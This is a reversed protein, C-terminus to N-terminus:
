EVELVQSLLLLHLSALVQSLLLLHLSALVQSLLLLHLSPVQGVQGWDLLLDEHLELLLSSGVWSSIDVM